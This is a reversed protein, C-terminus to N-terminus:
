WGHDVSFTRQFLNPRSSASVDALLSSRLCRLAVYRVLFNRQRPPSHRGYRAQACQEYRRCQRQRCLTNIAACRRVIISGKWTLQTDNQEYQAHGRASEWNPSCLPPSHPVDKGFLIRHMRIVEAFVIRERSCDARFGLKMVVSNEVLRVQLLQSHAPSSKSPRM